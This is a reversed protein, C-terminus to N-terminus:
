IQARISQAESPFFFFCSFGGLSQMSVFLEKLCRIFGATLIFTSHLVRDFFKIISPHPTACRKYTNIHHYKVIYFGTMNLQVESIM